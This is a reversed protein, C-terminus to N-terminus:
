GEVNTEDFGFTGVDVSFAEKVGVTEFGVHISM